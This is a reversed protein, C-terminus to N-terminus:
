TPQSLNNRQPNVLPSYLLQAVTTYHIFPQIPAIASKEARDLTHRLYGIVYVFRYM